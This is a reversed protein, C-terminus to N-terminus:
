PSPIHDENILSWTNENSLLEDYMQRALKSVSDVSYQGPNPKYKSTKRLANLVSGRGSHYDEAVWYIAAEADSDNYSTFKKKCHSILKQKFHAVEAETVDLLDAVKDIEFAERTLGKKEM